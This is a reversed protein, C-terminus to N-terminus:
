AAPHLGLAALAALTVQAPSRGQVGVRVRAVERYLPARRVALERLRAAADGHLLPRGAAADGRDLVEQVDADVHIVPGGRLLTRTAPDVVAGGGLALVGDHEALAARVAARELARFRQEGGSAFLAAVSRGTRDEIDDDTDRFGVGLRDAM